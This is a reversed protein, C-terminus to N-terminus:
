GMEEQTKPDQRLGHKRALELLHKRDMRVERSAKSLNGDHRDLLLELFRKEFGLVAETKMDGYSRESPKFEISLQIVSSM